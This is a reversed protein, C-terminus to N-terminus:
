KTLILQLWKEAAARYVKDGSKLYTRVEEAAGLRDGEAVYIRAIDLHARPVEEAGLRLHRAAEPAQELTAPQVNRALVAGLTYHARSYSSDVDLARRVSREAEKWRGLAYYAYGLNSYIMAGNGGSALAKEFQEAAEAYRTKRIFEVGLNCHAAVYDPDIRLAQELKRMAEDGHGAESARQADALARFAKPQVPHRM